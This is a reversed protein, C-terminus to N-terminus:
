RARIPTTISTHRASSSRQTHRAYSLASLHYLAGTFDFRVLEASWILSVSRGVLTYVGFDAVLKPASGFGVDQGALSYTGHNAVLARGRIFQVQQGSLSYLGQGALLRTAHLLRAVQGSLQYVGPGAVLLRSRRFAAAQGTLAYSGQAAAMSIGRFFTVPRGTLAYTGQAAQMRRTARLQAAYGTLSYAGSDATLKLDSLKSLVAAQGALAYTGYAAAMRRTARLSAATGTLTYSGQGGLLIRAIRLAAIQGSLSYSGAAALIRRTARLAAAQGSLLYSGQAAAMLKGIRLLAAQGTYSYTGQAASIKRTAKLGAAQGTLAYTGSAATLSYSVSTVAEWCGVDYGSGQPRARGIIDTAANTSDTTGADRMASSAKIRFDRGTDTITEFGSGTSTDFAVATCGSPPTPDDTFCTTFTLGGGGLTSQLNSCGFFACNRATRTGGYAFNLLNSAATFNSPVVWTCNYMAVDGTWTALSTDNGRQVFLSNALYEIGSVIQAGAAEFICNLVMSGAVGRIGRLASQTQVQLNSIRFYNEGSADICYLAYPSSGSIAAGNSANYRLANSSASGHDRFSAGTDTTLHKYCSSSTTTGGVTLVTSGSFTQNKCRGEWIQDATVLNSTPCADEWAQITSYDSGSGITKVVTTPM